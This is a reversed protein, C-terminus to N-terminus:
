GPDATVTFKRSKFTRVLGTTKILAPAHPAASNTAVASTPLQSLTDVRMDEKHQDNIASHQASRRRRNM